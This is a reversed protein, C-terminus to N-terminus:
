RRLIKNKSHKSPELDKWKNQKNWTINNLLVVGGILWSLYVSWSIVILFM